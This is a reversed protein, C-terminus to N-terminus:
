DAPDERDGDERVPSWVRGRSLARQREPNNRAWYPASHITGDPYEYEFRIVQEEDTSSEAAASLKLLRDIVTGLAATRQNLPAAAITESDLSDILEAAKESLRRRIKALRRAEAANIPM